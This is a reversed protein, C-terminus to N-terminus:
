LRLNVYDTLYNTQEDIDSTERASDAEGCPNIILSYQHTEQNDRIVIQYPNEYGDGVNLGLSPTVDAEMRSEDSSSSCKSTANRNTLHKEHHKRRQFAHLSEDSSAAPENRTRKDDHVIDDISIAPSVDLTAELVNNQQVANVQSEHDSVRSSADTETTCNMALPNNINTTSCADQLNLNTQTQQIPGRQDNALRRFGAAEYSISGIEDYTNYHLPEEINVRRTRSRKRITLCIHIVIIYVLLCAIISSSTILLYGHKGKIKSSEVAIVEFKYSTVGLENTAWIKYVHFDISSVINTQITINYCMIHGKNGFATYPVTLNALMFELKIKNQNHDTDVGEIWIDKITPDSYILFTLALLKDLEGHKVNRNEPVFIPAGTAKINFSFSDEGIANSAWIRYMEYENSLMKFEFVILEGKINANSEFDTYKLNTESMNVDNITENKTYGPAVGEIWIHEVIPNSFLFFTVTITKYLEAFKLKRNEKAFMPPGQYVFYESSKQLMSGNADRIINSVTCVYRGNMQYQYPITQLILTGNQLGDVFRVHDGKESQHEWKDFTYTDPFGDAALCDISNERLIVTVNPANTSLTTDNQKISLGHVDHGTISVCSINLNTGEQGYIVNADSQNLFRIPAVWIVIPLLDINCDYKGADRSTVNTIILGFDLVYDFTGEM